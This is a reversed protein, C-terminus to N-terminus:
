PADLMPIMTVTKQIVFARKLNLNKKFQLDFEGSKVLLNLGRLIKQALIRNRTHLYFTFNYNDSSLMYDPLVILNLHKNSEVLYQADQVGVILCDFRDAYLMKLLLNIDLSTSYKYGNRKLIDADHSYKYVGYSINSRNKKDFFEDNRAYRDNKVILARSRNLGRLLNFDVAILEETDPPIYDGWIVDLKKSNLLTLFLRPTGGSISVKNLYDQEGDVSAKALALNLIHEYFYNPGDVDLPFNPINVDRPFADCSFMLALISALSNLHKWYSKTIDM